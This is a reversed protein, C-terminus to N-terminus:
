LNDERQIDQRHEEVITQTLSDNGKLMGTGENVPDKSAPVIALGSGYNSLWANLAEYVEQAQGSFDGLPYETGDNLYVTVVRIEQREPQTQRTELAVERISPRPIRRQFLLYHLWLEDENFSVARVYRLLVFGLLFGGLPIMAVGILLNGDSIGVLGMAFLFVGVIVVLLAQWPKHRFTHENM